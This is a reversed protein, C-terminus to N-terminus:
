LWSPHLQSRMNIFIVTITGDNEEVFVVTVRSEAIAWTQEGKILGFDIKKTDRWYNDELLALVGAVLKRESPDFSEIVDRVPDPIHIRDSEM